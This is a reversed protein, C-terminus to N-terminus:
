LYHNCYETYETSIASTDIAWGSTKSRKFLEVMRINVKLVTNEEGFFDSSLLPMLIAKDM